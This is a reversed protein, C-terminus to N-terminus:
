SEGHLLKQLTPTCKDTINFIVLFSIFVIKKLTIKRDM